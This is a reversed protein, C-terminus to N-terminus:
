AVGPLMGIDIAGDKRERSGAMSFRDGTTAEDTQQLPRIYREVSVSEDFFSKTRSTIV